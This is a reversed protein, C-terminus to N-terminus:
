VNRDGKLIYDTTVGFFESFAVIEASDASNGSEIKIIRKDGIGIASSLLDVTLGRSIRLCRIRSGIDETKMHRASSIVRARGVAAPIVTESVLDRQYFVVYKLVRELKAIARESTSRVAAASIGRNRAIQSMSMSNYWKDEVIGRETETLENEIAYELLRSLDVERKRWAYAAPTECEECVRGCCLLQAAKIEDEDPYTIDILIDDKM